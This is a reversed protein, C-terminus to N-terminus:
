FTPSMFILRPHPLRLRSLLPKTPNTFRKLHELHPLLCADDGSHILLKLFTHYQLEIIAGGLGSTSVELHTISLESIPVLVDAIKKM